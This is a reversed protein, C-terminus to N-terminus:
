GVYLLLSGYCYPVPSCAERLARCLATGVRQGAEKPWPVNVESGPVENRTVSKRCREGREAVLFGLAGDRAAFSAFSCVVGAGIGSPCELGTNPKGTGVHQPSM